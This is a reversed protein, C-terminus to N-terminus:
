FPIDQSGNAQRPAPQVSQLSDRPAFLSLLIKSEGHKSDVGAPNFTRDLLIFENGDDGQLVVGVNQYKNATRGDKEYTGVTACIDYKKKTAM